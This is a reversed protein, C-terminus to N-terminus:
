YAEIAQQFDGLFYHSNGKNFYALSADDPNLTIAKQYQEIAEQYKEGMSLANGLNYFYEVKQPSLEIARQYHEIAKDVVQENFYSNALDYHVDAINNDLKIVREYYKAAAEFM